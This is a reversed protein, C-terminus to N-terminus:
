CFVEICKQKASFRYNKDRAIEVCLFLHFIWICEVLISRNIKEKKKVSYIVLM